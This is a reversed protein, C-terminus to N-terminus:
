DNNETPSDSDTVFESASELDIAENRATDSKGVVKSALGDRAIRAELVIASADPAAAVSATVLDVPNMLCIESVEPAATLSLMELIATNALCAVSTDPATIASPMERTTAYELCADSADLTTSVSLM